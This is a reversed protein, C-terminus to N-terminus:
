HCRPGPDTWNVHLGYVKDGNAGVTLVVEYEEANTVTLGGFSTSITYNGAGSSNLANDLQVITPLTPTGGWGFSHKRVAYFHVDDTNTKVYQLQVTNLVAGTPLRLTWTYVDVNSQTILEGEFNKFTIGYASTLPVITSRSKPVTYLYNDGVDIDDGVTLDVTIDVSGGITVDDGVSLDDTAVLDSATVTTGATISTGATITNTIALAKSSVTDGVILNGRGSAAWDSDLFVGSGAARGYWHLEGSVCRLLNAEKSTSDRSWKQGTGSTPAPDYSANSTICWQSLDGPSGEGAYFRIYTSDSLPARLILKWRNSSSGPHDHASSGSAVGFVPISADTHTVARLKETDLYGAWLALNSLFFNLWQSPLRDEPLFGAAMEPASPEIIEGGSAWNTLDSSPRTTM